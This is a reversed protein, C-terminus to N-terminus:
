LGVGKEAKRIAARIKAEVKPMAVYYARYFIRPYRNGGHDRNMTTNFIAGSKDEAGAREFIAAAVDSQTVRYGFATTVGRNRGRYSKVKVGKKAAPLNFQLNRGNARDQEILSYKAWQSMPNGVAGILSRAEKAVENAGQKMEKKLQKSVDKDFKELRNVFPALGQVELRYETPM